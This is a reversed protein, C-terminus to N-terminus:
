VKFRLGWVTFRCQCLRDWLGIFGLRWRRFRLGCIRCGLREGM